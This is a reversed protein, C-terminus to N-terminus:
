HQSFILFPALLQSLLPFHAFSYSVILFYDLYKLLLLLISLNWVNKLQIIIFIKTKCLCFLFWSYDDPTLKVLKKPGVKLFLLTKCLKERIVTLSLIEKPSLIVTCFSSMFHQHFQSNTDIEDVNFACIKRMCTSQV